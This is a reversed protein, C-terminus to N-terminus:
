EKGRKGCLSEADLMSLKLYISHALFTKAIDKYFIPEM